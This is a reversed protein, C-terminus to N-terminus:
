PKTGAKNYKQIDIIIIKIRPRQADFDIVCIERLVNKPRAALRVTITINSKVTVNQPEISAHSLKVSPKATANVVNDEFKDSPM